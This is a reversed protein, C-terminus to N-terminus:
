TKEFCKERVWKGVKNGRIDGSAVPTCSFAFAGLLTVFVLKQANGKFIANNLCSADGDPVIIAAVGPPAEQAASQHSFEFFVGKRGHRLSARHRPGKMYQVIKM